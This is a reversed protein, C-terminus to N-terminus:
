DVLFRTTAAVSPRFSIPETLVPKCAEGFLTSSLNIQNDSASAARRFGLSALNALRIRFKGLAHVVLGASAGDSLSV